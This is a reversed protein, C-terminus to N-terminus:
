FIFLFFIFSWSRGLVIVFLATPCLLQVFVDGIRWRPDASNEIKTCLWEALNSHARNLHVRHDDTTSLFFFIKIGGKDVWQSGIFGWSLWLWMFSLFPWCFLDILLCHLHADAESNCYDLNHLFGILVSCVYIYIRKDKHNPDAKEKKEGGSDTFLSHAFIM